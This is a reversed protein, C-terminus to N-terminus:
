CTSPQTLLTDDAAVRLLRSGAKYPPEPYPEESYQALLSARSFVGTSLHAPSAKDQLENRIRFGCDGIRSQTETPTNAQGNRM